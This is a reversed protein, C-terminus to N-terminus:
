VRTFKYFINYDINFDALCSLVRLTNHVSFSLVQLSKNLWFKLFLFKKYDYNIFTTQNLIWNGFIIYM